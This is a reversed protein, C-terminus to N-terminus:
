RAVLRRVQNFDYRYNWPLIKAPYSGFSWVSGNGLYIAVHSPSGYFVFDGPLAQNISQVRSGFQIQVWTNTYRWDVQPLIDAWHASGAGAGSCDARTINTASYLQSPRLQSYRIAWRRNYFVNLWALQKEIKLEAATPTGQKKAARMAAIANADFWPALKAHLAKTYRKAGFAESFDDGWRRQQASSKANFAKLRHKRRADARKVAYVALSDHDGQGCEVFPVVLIEPRKVLDRASAHLSTLTRPIYKAATSVNNDMDFPTEVVDQSGDYELDLVDEWEEVISISM